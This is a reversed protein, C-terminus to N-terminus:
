AEEKRSTKKMAVSPPVRHVSTPEVASNDTYGFRYRIVYERISDERVTKELRTRHLPSFTQGTLGQLQRHIADIWDFIQLERSKEMEPSGQDIGNYVIDALTVQLEADAQQARRSLQSFAAEGLDILACPFNVPPQLLNLQGWDEAVYMGPIKTLATLVANFVEKM